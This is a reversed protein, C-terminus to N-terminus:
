QNNIIVCLAAETILVKILAANGQMSFRSSHHPRGIRNGPPTPQGEKENTLNEERHYLWETGYNNM